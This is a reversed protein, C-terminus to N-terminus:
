RVAPGLGPLSDVLLRTARAKVNYEWLDFTNQDDAKPRLVADLLSSPVPGGTAPEGDEPHLDSWNLMEGAIMVSRALPEGGTGESSRDPTV